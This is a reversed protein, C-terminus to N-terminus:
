GGVDGFIEKCETLRLDRSVEHLRKFWDLREKKSGKHVGAIAAEIVAAEREELTRLFSLFSGADSYAGRVLDAYRRGRTALLLLYHDLLLEIESIQRKRIKETYLGPQAHKLLERTHVDIKGLELDREKGKNVERAAKFAMQKTFLLNKATVNVSKRWSIIAPLELPALLVRWGALVPKGQVITRSVLHAQTREHNWITDAVAM